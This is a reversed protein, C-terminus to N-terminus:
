QGSNEVPSKPNLKPIPSIECSKNEYINKLNNYDNSLTSLIQNFLSDKINNSDNNLEQFYKVFQNAFKLYSACEFNNYDIVFYSFFLTYFMDNFKSIENNNMNMLDKKKDIIGKYTTSGNDKIKENYYNNKEIYETYFNVLNMGCGDPATNLKYSLWLIAYEALKDDDLGYKKLNELLYIFGCSALQFYCDCNGKGSNRWSHCYKDISTHQTNVKLQGTNDEGFYNDITFIEKYLDKINPNSTKYLIITKLEKNNVKYAVGLFVPIAFFASLGPIVTNLISSSSSTGEPSEGLTQEVGKGPSDVSKEVSSKQPSLPPLDPFDCSKVKDHYIKKLNKYDDSLRSLLKNYSSKEINKPDNNLVNFQNVFKQPYDSYTTCKWYKQNIVYYLTLLIGFPDNFKSIEKIDMLDRNNDIIKKYTLDNDKINNNYFENTDIYSNYFDNLKTNIYKQNENLKYSLWLIAYEALKDNELGYKKLNTLLHIVGSSAMKLYDNDCKGNGTTNGDNCYKHISGHQEDLILQGKEGKYFYNNIKFIENYVDKISYNSKAM